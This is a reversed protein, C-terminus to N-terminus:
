GLRTYFRVPFDEKTRLTTIKLAMIKKILTINSINSNGLGQGMRIVVKIYKPKSVENLQFM